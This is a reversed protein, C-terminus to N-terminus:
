AVRPDSASTSRPTDLIQRVRRTLAGLGFPKQMFADGDGLVGNRVGADDNFGSIYLVRLDPRETRLRRVLEGGGMNPMIVDTVILDIAGPHHDVLELAHLGDRAVLVTYGSVSLAEHIPGRVGAEDEVLLVTEDGRHEVAGLLDPVGQDSLADDPVPPAAGAEVRPFRLSVKTGEGPESEVEIEAEWQRVLGYVVSLGLGAAKDKTTFFPEFLRRRIEADMGTGSDEITLMAGSPGNEATIRLRGGTPMADRANAALHVLAQEIQQREARVWAADEAPSTLLDVDEGLMRRLLGEFEAIVRNLNLVQVNPTGRKAFAALQRTLEAGRAGAAYIDRICEQLRDEPGLRLALLHAQGMVSTLLNNFDHAVGGALRAVAELKQSRRMDDELRQRETIDTAVGILGDIQGNSGVIPRYRTEFRLSGIAVVDTFEEGGLARGLNALIQPEDRYVEYASRGVVEGSALGL